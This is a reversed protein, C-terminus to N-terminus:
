SDLKTLLQGMRSEISSVQRDLETINAFEADLIRQVMSPDLLPAPGSQRTEIYRHALRPAVDAIREDAAVLSCVEAMWDLDETLPTERAIEIVLTPAAAAYQIRALYALFEDRREDSERQRMTVLSFLATAARMGEISRLADGVTPDDKSMM